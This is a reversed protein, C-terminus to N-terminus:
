YNTFHEQWTEGDPLRMYKALLPHQKEIEAYVERAVRRISFHANRAARLQVFHYAERLNFTALVRRNFGNPVIYSAIQPNFKALEHYALKAAEMADIYLPEYGADTFLSPTAYGLDVTLAQPTQSMMRHRKFEFYAGQDMVLDFNYHSYELERLPIDFKDMGGLLNEALNEREGASLADVHGM